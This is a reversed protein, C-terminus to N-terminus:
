GLCHPTLLAPNAARRNRWLLHRDSETRARCAPRAAGRAARTPHRRRERARGGVAARARAARRGAPARGGAPSGSRRPRGADRTGGGEGRRPTGASRARPDVLELDDHEEEPCDAATVVEAYRDSLHWCPGAATRPGGPGRW